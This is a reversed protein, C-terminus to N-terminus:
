SLSQPPSALVASVWERGLAPGRSEDVWDSRVFRVSDPVVRRDKFIGSNIVNFFATGLGIGCALILVATM